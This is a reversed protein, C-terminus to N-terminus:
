YPLKFSFQKLSSVSSCNYISKTWTIEDYKKIVEGSSWTKFKRMKDPDSVIEDHHYTAGIVKYDYGVLYITDFAFIKDAFQLAHFGTDGFLIDDYQYYYNCRECTYDITNNKFGILTINDDIKHSMFYTQMTRDYYIAIDAYLNILHANTSIVTYKETIKSWDFDNLSNGGGILLCKKGVGINKLKSIHEM